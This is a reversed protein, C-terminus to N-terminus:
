LALDDLKQILKELKSTIHRLKHGIPTKMVKDITAQPGSLMMEIAEKSSKSSIYDLLALAEADRNLRSGLTALIKAREYLLPTKKITGNKIAVAEVEMLELISECLLLIQDEIPSM